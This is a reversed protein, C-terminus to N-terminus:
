SPFNLNEIALNNWRVAAQSGDRSISQGVAIIIGNNRKTVDCAASHKYGQTIDPLKQVQPTADERWIFAESVHDGGGGLFCMGVIVTGDHSVGLASATWTDRPPEPHVNLNSINFKNTGPNRTWRVAHYIGPNEPDQSKGVIVNGNGSVAFAAISSHEGLGELTTVETTATPGTWLVARLRYNSLISHGVMTSGTYGSIGNSVCGISEPPAKLEQAPYITNRIWRLAKITGNHRGSGVIIDGHRESCSAVSTTYGAPVKFAEMGPTYDKSWYFARVASGTTNGSGVAITGNVATVRANTGGPLFGMERITPPSGERWYIPKNTKTTGVITDGNGSVGIAVTGLVTVTYKNNVESATGTPTDLM